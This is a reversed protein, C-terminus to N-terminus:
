TRVAQKTSSVGLLNYLYRTAEAHYWMDSRIIDHISELDFERSDTPALDSMTYIWLHDEQDLEGDSDFATCSIHKYDVYNIDVYGSSDTKFVDNWCLESTKFCIKSGNLWVFIAASTM